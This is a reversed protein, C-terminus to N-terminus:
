TRTIIVSDQTVVTRTQNVSGATILTDSTTMPNAPDLGLRQWLDNIVTTPDVVSSTPGTRTSTVSTTGTKTLTISGFAASLNTESLPATADLGLRQWVEVLRKATDTTIILNGAYNIEVSQGAISYTGYSATLVRGKVLDASQGTYLYAGYNATLNRNRAITASQGTYTYSGASATLQYNTVASHTITATQGTYTYTGYSATLNRNRAITVSQGTYSYSGNSATLNRNRALTASQGTYTYSGSSATLTHGSPAASTQTSGLPLQGLSGHGLM